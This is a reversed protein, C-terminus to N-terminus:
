RAEVTIVPTAGTHSTRPTAFSIAHMEHIRNRPPDQPFV